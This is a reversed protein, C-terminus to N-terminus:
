LRGDHGADAFTIPFRVGAALVGPYAAAVAVEGGAESAEAAASAEAVGAAGVAVKAEVAAL